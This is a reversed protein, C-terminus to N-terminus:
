QCAPVFFVAAGEWIIAILGLAGIGLALGHLFGPDEHKRLRRAAVMAWVTAGCAAATAGLVTLSAVDLPAEDPRAWGRACALGVFGYIFVFHLSWALMGALLLGATVVFGPGRASTM